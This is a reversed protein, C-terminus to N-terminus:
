ADDRSALRTKLMDAPPRIPPCSGVSPSSMTVHGPIGGELPGALGAEASCAPLGGQSAVTPEM